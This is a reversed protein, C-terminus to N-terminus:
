ASIIINYVTQCRNPSIVHTRFSYLLRNKRCKGFNTLVSDIKPPTIHVVMVNQQKTVQQPPIALCVAKVFLNIMNKFIRGVNTDYYLFM